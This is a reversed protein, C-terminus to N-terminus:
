KYFSIYEMVTELAKKHLQEDLVIREILSQISQNDIKSKAYNYELIAKEEDEIDRLLMQKLNTSDYVCRVNFNVGQSNNYYPVGGLKVIADALKEHHHMETIAIHELLKSIQPEKQATLYSQYIYQLIASTESNCSAYLNQLLAAYYMNPQDVVVEPFEIQVSYPLDEIEM